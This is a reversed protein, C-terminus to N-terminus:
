GNRAEDIRAALGNADLGGPTDDERMFVELSTPKRTGAGRLAVPETLRSYEYESIVVAVTRNGKVLYVPGHRIADEIAAIGRRKIQANTLINM